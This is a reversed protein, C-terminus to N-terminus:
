FVKLQVRLYKSPNQRVDGVLTRVDKAAGNLNDYFEPDNMLKALSGDGKEMRGALSDMRAILADLRKYLTDDVMMKGLTGEGHQLKSAVANLNSMVGKLDSVLKEDKSLAGIAGQGSEVRSIVAELGAASKALNRSMEQDNMMRGLPGRDSELKSMAAQLRSSVDVMRDYLEEDRLAKGILGEGADMRALIKRLHATSESTDALLGKFPDEKDARVWGGAPIPTGEPAATIDVAKEGLLGLAGLAAQSKDTVRDQVRSDLRMEVEVEGSGKAFDVKTVTGVEVGGVRVPAGPKLGNVDRMTAKVVYKKAWPSGGGSGIYLITGALVVLSVIVVVGVRLETWTLAKKEAM